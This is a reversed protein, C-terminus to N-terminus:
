MHASILLPLLQLSHWSFSPKTSQSMATRKEKFTECVTYIKGILNATQRQTQQETQRGRNRAARTKGKLSVQTIDQHNHGWRREKTSRTGPPCGPMKWLRPNPAPVEWCLAKCKRKEDGLSLTFKAQQSKSPSPIRSFVKRKSKTRGKLLMPPMLFM